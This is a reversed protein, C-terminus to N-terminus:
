PARRKGDRVAEALSLLPAIKKPDSALAQELLSATAAHRHPFARLAEALLARATEAEGDLAHFVARRVVIENAPWRRAVREGMALKEDLAHRDLPMGSFIWLEAV